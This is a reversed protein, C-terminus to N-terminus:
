HDDGVSIDATNSIRTLLYDPIQLFDEIFELEKLEMDRQNYITKSRDANVWSLVGAKLIEKREELYDKIFGRFESTKGDKIVWIKNSNLYMM